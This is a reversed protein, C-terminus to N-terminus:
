RITLAADSLITVMGIFVFTTSNGVNEDVITVIDAPNFLLSVSCVRTSSGAEFPWRLGPDASGRDKWMINTLVARFRVPLLDV